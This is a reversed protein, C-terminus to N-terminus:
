VLHRRKHYRTVKGDPTTCRTPGSVGCTPCYNPKIAYDIFVLSEPLCDCVPDECYCQTQQNSLFADKPITGKERLICEIDTMSVVYHKTDYQPLYM